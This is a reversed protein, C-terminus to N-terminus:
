ARRRARYRPLDQRRTVLLYTGAGLMTAWSIVAAIAFWRQPVFEARLKITFSGDSNQTCGAALKNGSLMCLKQPDVLWGNVAGSLTTHTIGRANAPAKPLWGNGADTSLAWAPHYTESLSVFFPTAAHSVQMTRVSESKAQMTDIHPQTLKQQPNQVVFFRNAFDPLETLNVNDYHVTNEARGNSEFAYLYLTMTSAGSPVHVVVRATHWGPGSSTLQTRNLTAGPNDFSTTYGYNKTGTTKYDFSFLYNTNEHVNATAHV